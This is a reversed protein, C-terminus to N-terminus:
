EELGVAAYGERLEARLKDETQGYYSLLAGHYAVAGADIEQYKQWGTDGEMLSGDWYWEYAEDDYVLSHREAFQGNELAYFGLDIASGSHGSVLYFNGDMVCWECHCGIDSHTIIANEFILEPQGNNLRWVDLYPWSIGWEIHEEAHGIVLEETGDRDFDLLKVLFVGTYYDDSLGAVSPSTVALPGYTEEYQRVVEAFASLGGPAAPVETPVPTPTHTPAPTPTSTPATEEFSYVLETYGGVSVKDEIKGPYRESSIRINYTGPEVPMRYMWGGNDDSVCRPNQILGPIGSDAAGFVEVKADKMPKGDAGKVVIELWASSLDIVEHNSTRKGFSSIVVKKLPFFDYEVTLELNANEEIDHFVFTGTVSDDAYFANYPSVQGDSGVEVCNIRVKSLDVTGDTSKMEVYYAEKVDDILRFPASQVLVFDVGLAIGFPYSVVNTNDRRARTLADEIERYKGDDDKQALYMATDSAVGYAYTQMVTGTSGVYADFGKNLFVRAMVKGDNTGYCADCFFLGGDVFPLYRDVFRHTIAYHDNFLGSSLIIEPARRGDPSKREDGLAKETEETKKVRTSLALVHEGDDATYIGGHGYWFVARVHKDRIGSFFAKIDDMSSSTELRVASVDSIKKGIEHEPDRYNAANALWDDALIVQDVVGITLPGDGSCCDEIEPMYVTTTDDNLFFSVSYGEECYACDRIKGDAKLECAYQYVAQGAETLVAEDPAITGDENAYPALTEAIGLSIFDREGASTEGGEEQVEPAPTPEGAKGKGSPAGVLDRVVLVAFVVIEVVLVALLIRLVPWLTSRGKNNQAM